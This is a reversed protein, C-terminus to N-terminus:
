IMGERYRMLLVDGLRGLFRWWCTCEIMVGIGDMGVAFGEM